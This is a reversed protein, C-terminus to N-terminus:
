QAKRKKSNAVLRDSLVAADPDHLQMGICDALWELAKSASVGRQEMVIDIPSYGRGDGFDRIGQSTFSLNPKRLSLARGTGSARWEAIAKFGGGARYCRQLGLKPVWARLNALALDNVERFLAAVDSGGTPANVVAPTEGHGASRGSRREFNPDYGFEKLVVAIQDATDDDLETLDELRLDLLTDDTWWYYPEGTDPHLSPPLVTQKGEALLDVLGVRDPTRFNKSRIKETNGRYFLSVGKRGKKQVNSPPLIELLPAVAEELDIDICILGRGCAVGVGAPDDGIMRLWSAIKDASPQDRCWEQWGPMAQWGGALRVGPKKEGPMIPIPSFGRALLSLANEAFPSM